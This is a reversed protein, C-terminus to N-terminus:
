TAKGARGAPQEAQRILDAMQAATGASLATDRRAGPLRRDEVFHLVAVLLIAVPEALNILSRVTPRAFLDWPQRADARVVGATLSGGFLAEAHRVVVRDCDAYVVRPTPVVGRVIEHVARATPLGAGIDLFQSIGTEQALFQVARGLFARNERAAVAAGPVAALLKAAAERDAAFNDKGGLLLDYIRAVNPVTPDFHRRLLPGGEAPGAMNM